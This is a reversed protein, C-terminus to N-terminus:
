PRIWPPAHPAWAGWASLTRLWELVACTETHIVALMFCEFDAAGLLCNQPLAAGLLARFIVDDVSM